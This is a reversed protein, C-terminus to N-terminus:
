SFSSPERKEISDILLEKVAGPCKWLVIATKPLNCSGVCM